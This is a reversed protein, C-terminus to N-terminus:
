IALKGRYTMERPDFKAKLAFQDTDLTFVVDKDNVSLPLLDKSFGFLIVVGGRTPRIVGAEVSQKSRASLSAGNKLWDLIEQQDVGGPPGPRSPARSPRPLRGGQVTIPLNSVGLMYHDAFEEPIPYKLADLMPQASEWTVIVDPLKGPTRGGGSGITASKSPDITLDSSGAGAPGLGNPKVDVRTDRAWPSRTTLELVDDSTWASPEKKNWFASAGFSEEPASLFLCSGAAVGLWRRRTLCVPRIEDTGM